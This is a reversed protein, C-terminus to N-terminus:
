DMTFQFVKMFNQHKKWQFPAVVCMGLTLSKSINDKETRGTCESQSLLEIESTDPDLFDSFEGGTDTVSFDTISISTQDPKTCCSDMENQVSSCAGGQEAMSARKRNTDKAKAHIEGTIGIKNLPFQLGLPDPGPLFDTASGKEFHLTSGSSELPLTHGVSPRCFQAIEENAKEMGQALDAETKSLITGGYGHCLQLTEEELSSLTHGTVIRTDENDGVLVGLDKVVYENDESM